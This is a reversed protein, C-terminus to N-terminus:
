RSLQPLGDVDREADVGDLIERLEVRGLDLLRALQGESMLDQRYAEAALLNLRLTGPQRTGARDLDDPVLDNLVQSAQQNTIGGNAEFWDWAGPKVQHLEELRRVLAERSVGFLHAMLIVHRRTLTGSGRTLEAFREMVTRAPTLFASAFANAYREERSQRLGDFMVEATRRCSVFHGLEHAATQARRERPHNANLLVCAGVADDYAFAGSVRSVIPRIYVRMGLDIELLSVMDRIPAMGLGLRHRLDAADSEAQARVDGPMIPREPPYSRVRAIGLVGELEVEAKALNSLVEAAQRLASGDSGAARRFRPQFRQLLDVHTADPRTLANVSEGYSHALQRLEEMRVRRQGSEIAVLTTRAIEMEKAAQAQTLGARQRALRLRQGLDPVALDDM